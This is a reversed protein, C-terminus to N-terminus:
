GNSQFPTKQWDFPTKQRGSKEPQKEVVNKRQLLTKESCCSFIKGGSSPLIKAHGATAYM